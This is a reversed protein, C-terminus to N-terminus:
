GGERLRSQELWARASAAGVCRPCWWEVDWQPLSNIPECEKEINEEAHCVRGRPFFLSAFFQSISSGSEETRDYTEAGLQVVTGTTKIVAQLIFAAHKHTFVSRFM